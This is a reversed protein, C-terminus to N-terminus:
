HDIELDGLREAEGHWLSKDGSGVLHDFSPTSRGPVADLPPFPSSLVM